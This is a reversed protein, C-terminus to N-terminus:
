AVTGPTGDGGFYERYACVRDGRVDLAIVVRNAYPQRGYLQGHDRFEFAVTHGGVLVRDLDVFLGQPYVSSVFTFFEIANSKGIRRGKFRGTPFWVEVDDTLCDIFADWEGTSLAHTFRAFARRAVSEVRDPMAAENM